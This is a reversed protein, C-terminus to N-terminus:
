SVDVWAMCTRLLNDFDGKLCENVFEKIEHRSVGGHYLAESVRGIISIAKGDTGTLRVEINPYRIETPPM